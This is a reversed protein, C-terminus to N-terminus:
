ILKRHKERFSKVFARSFGQVKMLIFNLMIMSYQGPQRQSRLDLQIACSIRVVKSFSISSAVSLGHLSFLPTKWIEHLWSNIQHLTLSLPKGSIFSNFCLIRSQTEGSFSSPCMSRHYFLM